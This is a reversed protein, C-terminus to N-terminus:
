IHRNYRMAVLINEAWREVTDGRPHLGDWLRGYMHKIKGHGIHKHVYRQTMPTHLNYAANMTIIDSNLLVVGQNLIAQCHNIGPVRNYRNVDLGTIPLVIVDRIQCDEHCYKVLDMVLDMVHASLDYPSSFPVYNYRSYNNRVSIDNVGAMIYLHEVPQTCVLQKAKTKLGTLGIGPFFWSYMVEDNYLMNEFVNNLYRGRSDSLLITSMSM